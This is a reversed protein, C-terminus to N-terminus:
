KQGDDGGEASARWMLMPVARLFDGLVDPPDAEAGFREACAARFEEEVARRGGADAKLWRDEYERALLLCKAMRDAEELAWAPDHTQPNAEDGIHACDFGYEYGDEVDEAFTIGGHVPVAEALNDFYGERKLPRKPFTAYGCLYTFPGNTVRLVRLKYGDRQEECLTEKSM